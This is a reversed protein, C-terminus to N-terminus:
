TQLLRSSCLARCPGSSARVAELHVGDFALDGLGPRPAHLREPTGFLEARRARAAALASAASAPTGEAPDAAVNGGAFALAPHAPSERHGGDNAQGEPDRAGKSGKRSARHLDILPFTSSLTGQGVHEHRDVRIWPSGEFGNVFPWALGRRRIGPQVRSLSPGARIQPEPRLRRCPPRYERMSGSLSSPTSCSHWDFAPASAPGAVRRHNRARHADARACPAALM